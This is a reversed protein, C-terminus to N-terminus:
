EHRLAVMPDVKAARRAPLYSALCGTGALVFAVVAFTLADIPQVGFLLARLFRTLVIAAALGLVIGTGVLVLGQRVVMGIVQSRDAGMAMRLGIERTRQRVAFSLLGYVGVAAVVVALGALGALLLMAYNLQWTSDRVLHDLRYFELVTSKPDIERLKHLMEPYLSGPDRTTRVVVFGVTGLSQQDPEYLTPPASKDMGDVALDGVVGVVTQWGKDAWESAHRLRKGVPDEGPWFRRAAERNVIAIPPSNQRDKSSFQRGTVLPVGLVEFYNPAVAAFAARVPTKETESRHELRFDRHAYHGRM